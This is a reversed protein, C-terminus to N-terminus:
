DKMCWWYFRAKCQVLMKTIGLHGGTPANHIHELVCHILSRPVVLLLRTLTGDDNEWKKYLIGDKVILQKWAGWLKKYWAGEHSVDEWTPQDSQHEMSTIISGLVPDDLQHQRIEQAELGPLWNSWESVDTM